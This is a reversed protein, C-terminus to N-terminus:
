IDAPMGPARLAREKTQSSERRWWPQAPSSSLRFGSIEDCICRDRAAPFAHIHFCNGKALQRHHRVHRNCRSRNNTTKSRNPSNSVHGIDPQLGASGSFDALRMPRRVLPLGQNGTALPSLSTAGADPVLGEMLRPFSARRRLVLAARSPVSIATHNMRRSCHRSQSCNVRDRAANAPSAPLTPADAYSRRSLTGRM